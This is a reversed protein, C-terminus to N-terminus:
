PDIGRANRVLEVGTRDNDQITFRKGAILGSGWKLSLMYGKSVIDLM